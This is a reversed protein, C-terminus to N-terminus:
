PQTSTPSPGASAPSPYDPPRAGPPLQELITVSTADDHLGVDGNPWHGPLYRAGERAYRWLGTGDNGVEDPGTGRPDWWIVAADDGATLDVLPWIHHRGWSLHLFPSSTPRHSPYRFLGARFSAPTLDPGALHVGTFFLLPAQVLLRFTKAIPGRGTQWVLITALEDVDDAQRTPLLTVGIAHRWQRPDYQRGFVATDTFAYGMVVWEPFYGQATAERTLFAPFVPDGALIVSTVHAERLAAISSRASEQASELDLQYPVQTALEVQHAALLDTFRKFSRDFTGPEDDYRVVGFRRQERRLSPDGAYRARRGSLEKGVFAAWHEAAQDPSALTPWIYPARSEIFSEPAAITCDGVCLVGRAALEDAYATTQSPGGFSAFAKIETAVRIADAKATVDDDPPGSAKLPVLRVRRGYTQYHAQFFDVYQQITALESGLAEDSGSRELFTQELLDPQAQYVAVVIEDRTVGRSTQGGNDGGTWPEVCSPAYWLPVAVTGRTTDCTPGWDVTRGAARAEDFTLPLAGAHVRGGGHAREPESGETVLGAVVLALAVAM